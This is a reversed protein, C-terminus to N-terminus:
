NNIIEFETRRNSQHQQRGCETGDACQNTPMEEGMWKAVIRNSDIGKQILYKKAQDARKQALRQNYSKSGRSDTHSVLEINVKPYANLVEVIHDLEYQADSRIQHKDFNYYINKIKIIRKVAIGMDKLSAVLQELNEEEELEGKAGVFSQTRKTNEVTIIDVEESGELEVLNQSEMAIPLNLELIALDPPVDRASIVPNSGEQAGEVVVKYDHGPKGFFSVQDKEKTFPISEGTSTDIIQVSNSELPAGSQSDVLVAEVPIKDVVFRFIDDDAEKGNRNSSFYGFRNSQDLIFSFDDKPTNIPAGLNAPVEATSDGLNSRYIDLGGLGGHGDSAFYIVQDKHLYPFMENGKTNVNSGLNVPTSWVGNAFNSSYLDTGGFGGPMDSAFYLTAGDESIAPHGVSYDDSNFSLEKVRAWKNRQESWEAYFLKLKVLKDHSKSIKGSKYNNRTFIVKQENDFFVAPGEHLKSNIEDSFKNPDLLDGSETEHSYYLDLFSKGNWSFTNKRWAENGRASAFVVGENYFTPSFDAEPSNVNVAEVVYMEQYTFYQDLHDIGEIKKSARPDDEVLKQYNLYWKKAEDYQGNSSLSEAYYLAHIPKTIQENDIVEGYWQAAQESDNLHRYSEALKLKINPDDNDELAIEYLEAAKQFSYSKYHKDALKLSNGLNSSLSQAMIQTSLWLGTLMMLIPKM